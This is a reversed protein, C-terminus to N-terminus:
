HFTGCAALTLLANQVAVVGIELVGTGDQHPPEVATM